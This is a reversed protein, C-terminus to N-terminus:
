SAIRRDDFAEESRRGDKEISSVFPRLVFSTPAVDFYRDIEALAGHDGHGYLERVLKGGDTHGLQVAVLRESMGLEVHMWWAARHRLEYFDVLEYRGHKDARKGLLAALPTWYGSLLPQSLPGGRKASFILESKRPLAELVALAQPTLVITREQGNKPPGLRGKYYRQCVHIRMAEGDVDSWRLAFLEGPRMGSYAAFLILARMMPGYSGHLRLAYDCLRDLEADGLPVKDRRGRTKRALGKFPNRTLEDDAIARNFMAVVAAV